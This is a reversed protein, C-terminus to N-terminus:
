AQGSSQSLPSSATPAPEPVDGEPCRQIIIRRALDRDVALRMGDMAIVFGAPTKQVLRAPVGIRLGMDILRRVMAAEGGLTRVCFHAGPELEHLPMVAHMDHPAGFAPCPSAGGPVKGSDGNDSMAGPTPPERLMREETSKFLRMLVSM